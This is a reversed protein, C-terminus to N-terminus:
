DYKFGVTEVAIVVMGSSGKCGGYNVEFWEGTSRKFLYTVM